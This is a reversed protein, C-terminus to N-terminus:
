LPEVGGAVLEAPTRPGLTTKSDVRYQHRGISAFDNRRELAVGSADDDPITDDDYASVNCATTNGHTIDDNYSTTDHAHAGRHNALLAAATRLQPLQQLGDLREAERQPFRVPEV